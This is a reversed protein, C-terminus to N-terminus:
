KALLDLRRRRLAFPQRGPAARRIHPPITPKDGIGTRGTQDLLAARVQAETQPYAPFTVPSIEYLKVKKITRITQNEDDIDWEEDLVTFGFSMGDVYGQRITELFGAAQQTAPPTIQFALGREDEWLRLTQNKVRGIPYDANHNWLARIDDQAITLAFAGREIRERFDDWWTSLVLSLEGFLAAYGTITPPDNSEAATRAEIAGLPWFRREFRSANPQSTNPQSQTSM